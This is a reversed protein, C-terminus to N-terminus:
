PPAPILTELQVDYEQRFNYIKKWRKIKKVEVLIQTTSFGAM